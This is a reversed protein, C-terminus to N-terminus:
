LEQGKRFCGRFTDHGSAVPHNLLREMSHSSGANSVDLVVDLDFAARNADHFGFLFSGEDCTGSHSQNPGVDVPSSLKPDHLLPFTLPVEEQFLADGLQPCIMPVQRKTSARLAFRGAAFNYGVVGCVADLGFNDAVCGSCTL